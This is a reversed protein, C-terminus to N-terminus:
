VPEDKKTEEEKKEEEKEMEKSVEEATESIADIVPDKVNRAISKIIALPLSNNTLINCIYGSCTGGLLCILVYVSFPMDFRDRLACIIATVPISAVIVRKLSIPSPKDKKSSTNQLVEKILIGIVCLVYTILFSGYLYSLLENVMTAQETNM